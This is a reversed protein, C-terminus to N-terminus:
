PLARLRTRMGPSLWISGDRNVILADLGPAATLLRVGAETGLVMVALSLGNVAEMDRAVLTVGRPGTSPFGTRPDLIHHYRKGDKIFYREYDGSSVVFGRQLEVVGLLREPARPDRVGVRWSRGGDPGTVEVDGGGNVMARTVGRRELVRMGAHLIYLKAIGGLDIRMGREALFATGAREDLGLKRYDVKGLQASIEERSPMRAEGPRFRWGSLSGVTIDFAGGSRESMRRAMKLVEMLEPAVPVARTGAGANIASVVSAPDFHNMMDSLRAMERYADGVAARLAEADPGEAAIDVVTGMLPRAEDVRAAGAPDSATGVLALLTLARGLVDIFRV